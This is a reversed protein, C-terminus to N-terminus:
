EVECAHVCASVCISVHASCTCIVHASKYVQACVHMSTHVYICNMPYEKVVENLAQKYDHISWAYIYCGCTGIYAKM